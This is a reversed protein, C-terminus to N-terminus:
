QFTMEVEQIKALNIREVDSLLSDVQDYRGEYWKKRNFYRKEKKTKFIYGHDAFIENRMMTLQRLNYRDLEQFSLIRTSTFPYKRHRNVEKQNQLLSFSGNKEIRYNEYFTTEVFDDKKAIHGLATHKTTRMLEKLSDSVEYQYRDSQFFEPSLYFDAYELEIVEDDILNVSMNGDLSLSQAPLLDILEGNPHFSALYMRNNSSTPPSFEYFLIRFSDRYPIEQAFLYHDEFVTTDPFYLRVQDANAQESWLTPAKGSLQDLFRSFAQISAGPSLGAQKVRLLQANSGDLPSVKSRNITNDFCALLFLMFLPYILKQSM